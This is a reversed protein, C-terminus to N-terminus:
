TSASDSNDLLLCVVPTAVFVVAVFCFIREGQGGGGGFFCGGFCIGGGGRRLVLVLVVLVILLLYCFTIDFLWWCRCCQEYFLDSVNGSLSNTQCSSRTM